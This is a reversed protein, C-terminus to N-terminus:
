KTPKSSFAELVADKTQEFQEYNNAIGAIAKQQKHWAEQDVQQLRAHMLKKYGKETGTLKAATKLKQLAMSARIDLLDERERNIILTRTLINTNRHSLVVSILSNDILRHNKYSADIERAVIQHLADASLYEFGQEVHENDDRIMKVLEHRVAHDCNPNQLIVPIAQECPRKKNNIFEIILQADARPDALIVRQMVHLPLVGAAGNNTNQCLVLLREWEIQNGDGVAHRLAEEVGGNFELRQDNKDYMGKCMLALVIIQDITMRQERFIKVALSLTLQDSQYLACLVEIPIFEQYEKRLAVYLNDITHNCIIRRMAYLVASDQRCEKSLQKIIGVYQEITLHNSSLIARLMNSLPMVLFDGPQNNTAHQLLQNLADADCDDLVQGARTNIEQATLGEINLMVNDVRSQLLVIEDQSLM